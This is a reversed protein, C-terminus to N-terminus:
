RTKTKSPKKKPLPLSDATIRVLQCLWDRDELLDGDIEMSAKAGPYAFGEHYKKGVFIKGAETIKIYLTDDCVLAVVKSDCYLAYEGFMKRTTVEGVADLQDLIYDITTQKTAMLNAHQVSPTLNSSVSRILSM